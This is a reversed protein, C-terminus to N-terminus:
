FLIHAQATGILPPVAMIGGHLYDGGREAVWISLRRADEPAGNTTNVITRGSLQAEAGALVERVAVTNALSIVTIPSATVAEAAGAALTAGSAALTEAKGRSRNWVSARHGRHLLARALATGMAGLGVISIETREFAEM